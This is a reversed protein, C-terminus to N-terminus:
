GRARTARAMDASYLALGSWIFVFGILRDAGFAEGFVFVALLFQLTPALYQLFGVTSLPLRRAGVAFLMLPVATIAGSLPLLWDGQGGHGWAMAGTAAIWAVYAAAVPVLVVTEVLLGNIADVRARKRLLGYLGFTAALVLAVWPVGGVQWMRWAVGCSALAVAARQLPRLREGLFLRGLVVNVLPNIFYGLSAELVHGAAVAWVFVLWNTAALLSTVALLAVLRPEGRLRRLGAYGGAAPWLALLALLFLVSWLVRHAVVELPPIDGLARFYLPVLGWATFAALAALIGRRTDAAAAGAQPPPVASSPSSAFGARSLAGGEPSRADASM